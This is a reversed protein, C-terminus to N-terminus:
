SWGVRAAGEIRRFFIRRHRVSDALPAHRKVRVGLLAVGVAAYIMYGAVIALCSALLLASWSGSSVWWCLFGLLLTVVLQAVILPRSAILMTVAADLLVLRRRRLGERALRPGWAAAVRMGGGIWRARQVALQSHRVPFDSTVCVGPM